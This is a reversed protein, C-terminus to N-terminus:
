DYYKYSLNLKSTLTLNIVYGEDIPTITIDESDVKVGEAVSAYVQAKLKELISDKEKKFDHEVQTLELEYAITKNIKIPLFYQSVNANNEVIEFNSYPNNKESALIKFGGLFITNKLLEQEGTRVYVDEINKFVYNDSWYVIATIDACPTVYVKDEGKVVFPEVLTDGKYVIDGVKVLCTGSYCSISEIVMNYDAIIPAYSNELSPLSEKINIVVSNGKTIISVLSFNFKESLQAEIEDTNFSMESLTDIGINKLEGIVDERTTNELGYIHIQLLRNNLFFSCVLAFILGIVIGIRYILSYSFNKWGGFKLLEINYKKVDLKKFKQNDKDSLEFIIENSSTRSINSLMVNNIECFNIFSVINGKCIYKYNNKTKVKRM